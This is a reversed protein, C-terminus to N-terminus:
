QKKISKINTKSNLTKQTKIFFLYVSLYENSVDVDIIIYTFGVCSM